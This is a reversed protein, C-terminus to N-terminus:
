SERRRATYESRSRQQGGSIADFLRWVSEEPGSDWREWGLPSGYRFHDRLVKVLDATPGLDVGRIRLKKV